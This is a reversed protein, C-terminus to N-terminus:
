NLERYESPTYGTYRKFLKSFYHADNIGVLEAVEYSKYSENKLYEKSKEIRIENLCDVYCRKLEKSFLRSLYYSSVFTHEAVDNLTIDRNYNTKMYELAKRIILSMNQNENDKINSKIKIAPMLNIQKSNEETIFNGELKVLAENFRENIKLINNGISSMAMLINFSYYQTIIQKFLELKENVNFILLPEERLLQVIFVIRNKSISVHFLSYDESLVDNFSNIIGQHYIGEKDENGDLEIHIIVVVYERDEICCQKIENKIRDEKIDINFILDFILKQRVLPMSQEINRKLNIIENKERIEEELKSVANKLIENISDVKSPKLTYDFAGFKLAKQIYEFDRYGTLIIIKAEPVIHRTEKIMDLGDMGPMRIDAIIIEPKIAKIKEMGEIGDGAEGAVICNFSTWDIIHKLGKRIVTEDDVILVKFM